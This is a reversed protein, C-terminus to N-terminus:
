YRLYVSCTASVNWNSTFGIANRMFCFPMASACHFARWAAATGPCNHKCLTVAEMEATGADPNCALVKDCLQECLAIDADGGGSSGCGQMNGAVLALSAAVGVILMTLKSSM